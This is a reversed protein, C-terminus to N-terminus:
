HLKTFLPEYLTMLLTELIGPATATDCISFIRCQELQSRTENIARQCSPYGSLDHQRCRVPIPLSKMGLRPTRQVRSRTRTRQCQRLNVIEKWSQIRPVLIFGTRTLRPTEDIARVTWRLLAHCQLRVQLAAKDSALVTVLRLPRRLREMQQRLLMPGELTVKPM